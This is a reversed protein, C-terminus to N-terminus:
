TTYLTLLFLAFRYGLVLGAAAVTLLTAGLARAAYRGGYVRGIAIHLYLACGLLNFVSITTDLRSSELGVGGSWVCIQTAAISVCFLLLLTAYLHLAFVFHIGFPRRARLFTVALLAAFPVVMAIILAKAHLIVAQDFAVAFAELSMARAQLRRAVLENALPSWDQHHLHSDLTSSFV